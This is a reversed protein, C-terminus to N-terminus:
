SGANEEIVALTRAMRSLVRVRWWRAKILRASDMARDFIQRAFEIRGSQALEVAFGALLSAQDFASKAETAVKIARSEMVQAESNRAATRLHESIFWFLRSRLDDDDINNATRIASVFMGIRAYSGAVRSLAFSSGFPSDIDEVLSEARKLLDEALVRKGLRHQSLAMESLALTRYRLDGISTAFRLSHQATKTISTRGASVALARAKIQAAEIKALAEAAADEDGILLRIRAITAWAADRAPGDSIKRLGEETTEILFRGFESDGASLFQEALRALMLTREAFNRQHSLLIKIEKGIGRAETVRKDALLVHAISTLAKARQNAEPILRATDIARDFQENKMLGSAIERLAIFILRPDSLRKMQRFAEDARGTNALERILDRLAWNRYEEKKIDEIGAAARDFLCDATPVLFCEYSEPEPAAESPDDSLYRQIELGEDLLARAASIQSIRARELGSKVHRTREVQETLHQLLKPWEFTAGFLRHTRRYRRIAHGTAISYQGDISGNYFGLHALATQVEFLIPSWPRSLAGPDVREASAFFGTALVFM